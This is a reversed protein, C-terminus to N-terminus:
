SETFNVKIEGYQGLPPMRLPDWTGASRAGSAGAPSSHTPVQSGDGGGFVKPAGVQMRVVGPVARPGSGATATRRHAECRPLPSPPYGTYGEGTGVRYVWGTYGGPVGERVGM